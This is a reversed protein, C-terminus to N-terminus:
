MVARGSLRVRSLSLLEPPEYRDDLSAAALVGEWWMPDIADSVSDGMSM